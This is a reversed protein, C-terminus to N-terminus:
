EESEQPEFMKAGCNPCYNHPKGDMLDVDGYGCNSCRAHEKAKDVFIWRGTKETSVQEYAMGVGILTEEQVVRFNGEETHVSHTEKLATVIADHWGQKYDDTKETSVPSLLEIEELLPDLIKLREWDLKARKQFADIVTQRSIADECPIPNVSPLKALEKPINSWHCFGSAVRIADSRSIADECPKIKKIEHLAEKLGCVRGMEERDYEDDATSIWVQLTEIVEELTMEEKDM